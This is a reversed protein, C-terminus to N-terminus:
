PLVTIRFGIVYMSDREPVRSEDHGGGELFADSFSGDTPAFGFTDGQEVSDLFMVLAKRQTETLAKSSIQYSDEASEAYTERRGSLSRRTSKFVSRGRGMGAYRMPLTYVVTAGQTVGTVLSRTAVFRVSPM